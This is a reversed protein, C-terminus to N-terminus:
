HREDGRVNRLRRVHFTVGEAYCLYRGQTYISENREENGSITLAPTLVSATFLPVDLYFMKQPAFRGGCM